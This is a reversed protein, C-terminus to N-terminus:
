EALTLGSPVRTPVTSRLDVCSSDTLSNLFVVIVRVEEDTLNVPAYEIADSIGQRRTADDQVVFDLADLDSRSPLAAQSKDYNALSDAPNAMHRVVAELTNYAGAHGWPGTQAVQRLSPTRFKFRDNSDGTVQERGFDDHNDSHGAQNDGRGPGIQPMGVAHFQHDTLMPGSHCDSCGAKGYFVGGGNIADLSSSKVEYPAAGADIEKWFQDFPSDTCRWDSSEFAAIANAAHVYTIDDATAIEPYAAKFLTVYEDIARLRKALLDWVGGDGALKGAAAADAIPNEGAQGAMETPSTVPFM